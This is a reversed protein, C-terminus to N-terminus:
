IASFLASSIALTMRPDDAFLQQLQKLVPYSPLYVLGYCLVEM